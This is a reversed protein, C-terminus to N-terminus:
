EYDKFKKKLMEKIEGVSICNEIKGSFGSKISIRPAKQHILQIAEQCSKNYNKNTKAIGVL